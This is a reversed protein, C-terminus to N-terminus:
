DRRPGAALGLLTGIVLGVVLVTAAVNWPNDHAYRDVRRASRRAGRAIDRELDSLSDRADELHAAVAQRAKGLKDGGAELLAETREIVQRMDRVMRQM